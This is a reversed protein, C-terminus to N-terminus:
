GIEGAPHARPELLKAMVYEDFRAGDYAACARLNGEIEFGIKRYLRIATTNTTVVTLQLRHIGAGEAWREIARMLATGLGAGRRAPHVGIGIELTGRRAPHLGRRGTVLACIGGADAAVLVAENGNAAIAALHERLLAVGSVPDIPVIFLGNREAALLNMLAILSPVDAATPVAIAASGAFGREGSPSSVSVAM